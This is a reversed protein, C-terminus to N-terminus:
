PNAELERAREDANESYISFIWGGISKITERKKIKEKLEKDFCIKNNM